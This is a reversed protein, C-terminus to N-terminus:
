AETHNNGWAVFRYGAQQLGTLARLFPYPSYPLTMCAIQFKTPVGKPPTDSIFSNVATALTTSAALGALGAGLRLFRRRDIQILDHKTTMSNRPTAAGSM